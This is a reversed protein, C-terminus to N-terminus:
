LLLTFVPTQEAPSNRQLPSTSSVQETSRVPNVVTAVQWAPSHSATPFCHSLQLAPSPVHVPAAAPFSHLESPCFSSSTVQLPEVGKQTALPFAAAQTAHRVDTSQETDVLGHWSETHLASPEHPLTATAASVAHLALPPFHSPAPFQRSHAAPSFRHEPTCGCDHPASPFHTVPSAHADGAGRQRPPSQTCHAAADSQGADPFSQVWATHLM